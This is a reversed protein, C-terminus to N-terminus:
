AQAGAARMWADGIARKLLAGALFSRYDGSAHLDANPTLVSQAADVAATITEPVPEQGELVDQVGSMRLATDGVGMMAVRVRQMRGQSAQLTIGVAAMAFDGKRKAIEHFAWGTGAPLRPFEVGVLIEDEELATALAGLFFDGTSLARAGRHSRLHLKAGLLTALMPLEAAPDAHSLSGGTTGRNRIALHAVHQMAAAIVPLEQAIVPSTELVRHRTLAGVYIHDREERIGSLEAIPNIDVLIAPRVLRFNLMPMLSQGGAIVKAEGGHQRLLDLAEEVTAATAYDFATPKM